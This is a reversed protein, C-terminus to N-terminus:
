RPRRFKAPTLGNIEDLAARAEVRAQWSTLLNEGNEFEMKQAMQLPTMGKYRHKASHGAELLQLMVKTNLSETYYHLLSKQGPGPQLDESPFLHLMNPRSARLQETDRDIRQIASVLKNGAGKVASFVVMDKADVEPAEKFVRLVTSKWNNADPTVGSDRLVRFATSIDKASDWHSADIPHPNHWYRTLVSGGIAILHAAGSLQFQEGTIKNRGVLAPQTWDMPLTELLQNIVSDQKAIFVGLVSAFTVEYKHTQSTWGHRNDLSHGLDQLSHLRTFDEAELQAILPRCSSGALMKGKIRKLLAFREEPTNPQESM